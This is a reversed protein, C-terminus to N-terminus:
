DEGLGSIVKYPVFIGCGYQRNTGLGTYQLQLSAEAKLDHIVLSYGHISQQDSSITRSKGCILKGKINLESLHTNIQEMFLVEDNVGAVQQAHITPYPYIPRAKAAGLRIPNGAIDLQHGILRTTTHAVLTTPLRITLKARKSLLLGEHNATGRLSMVGVLEEEAFEPVCHVLAEWLAFPYTSPLTGADLDFVMDIMEPTDNTM